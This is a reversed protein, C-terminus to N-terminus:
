LINESREQKPSEEREKGPPNSSAEKRCAKKPKEIVLVQSYCSCILQYTHLWIGSVFGPVWSSTFFFLLFINIFLFCIMNKLIKRQTRLTFIRWISLIVVPNTLKTVWITPLKNLELPLVSIIIHCANTHM